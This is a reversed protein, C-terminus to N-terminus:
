ISLIMHNYPLQYKPIFKQEANYSTRSQLYLQRIDSYKVYLHLPHKDVIFGSLLSSMKSYLSDNQDHRQTFSISKETYFLFFFFM